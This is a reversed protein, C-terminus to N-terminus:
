TFYTCTFATVKKNNIDIIGLLVWYHGVISIGIKSNIEILKVSYNTLIM